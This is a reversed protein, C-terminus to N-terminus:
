EVVIGKGAALPDGKLNTNVKAPISATLNQGTSSDSATLTASSILVLVNGVYEATPKLSIEFGARLTDAAADVSGIEWIVSNTATEYILDGQTQSEQSNWGVLTGLKLVVRANKLPNGNNSVVVRIKYNTLEDVRPPLPGSGIQNYDDSFYRADVDLNVQSNLKITIEPMQATFDGILMKARLLLGSQLSASPPATDKLQISFALTGEKGVDLAKLLSAQSGNFVLSGAREIEDTAIGSLDGKLKFTDWNLWGPNNFSAELISNELKQEGTNRYKIVIDLTQGWSAGIQTANSGNITAGLSVPDRQLYINKDWDIIAPSEQGTASLGLLQLKLSKKENQSGTIQYKFDLTQETALKDLRWVLSDARESPTTSPNASILNFGAPYEMVVLAGSFAGAFEPTPKIKIQGSKEEGSVLQEPFIWEADLLSGSIKTDYSAHSTFNASFNQPQYTLAANLSRSEDQRGFLRGRIIFDRKQYGSLEGIDWSGGSELSQDFSPSAETLVFDQPWNVTIETQGLNTSALNNLKLTYSVEQGAAAQSPGALTFSIEESGWKPAARNQFLFFGAVALAFIIFLAVLLGGLVRILRSGSGPTKLGSGRSNRSRYKKEFQDFNGSSM